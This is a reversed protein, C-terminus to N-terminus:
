FSLRISGQCAAFNYEVEVPHEKQDQGMTSGTIKFVQDHLHEVAKVRVLFVVGRVTEFFPHHEVAFAIIQNSATPSMLATTLEFTQPNCAGTVIPIEVPEAM